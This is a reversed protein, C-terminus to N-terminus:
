TSRDVHVNRGAREIPLETRNKARLFPVRVRTSSSGAAPAAAVTSILRTIQTFKPSSHTGNHHSLRCPAGGRDIESVDEQEQTRRDRPPPNHNSIFM